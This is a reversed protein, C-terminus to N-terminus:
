ACAAEIQRYSEKAKQWRGVAQPVYRRTTLSRRVVARAEALSAVEGCAIAQVTVNGGATAETSGALVPRGTANATAQNLYENRAGGGVIHITTIPSSTLAEISDVISAYRLALSDFIVRTLHVPHQPAPQGTELLSVRLAETMSPPNLFRLDDPCVFGVFDDLAAAGAILEAYDSDRGDRQWERRCSELLWLGMVNKLFRVTGFAGIENTFNARAAAEDVLPTGREVGVLSWTGSSVFAGGPELPTGAVASATDHTAPAVIPIRDLGSERHLGARLQGLETGAPVIEPMAALPLGLRAFLESDWSATGTSLLGTTSANTIETVLSGSLLHHCLDPILLLHFAAEPLGERAHAALQFITNIPLIQIGTRAFLEARPIRAFVESVVDASTRPDRYCVPEELLHGAGDVVAYDVGWSDVGASVVRVEMDAAVARALGLSTHIGEFLRGIHWRLHGAEQRPAYTFRHVEHLEIGDEGLRGLVARGSGAGLDIALHFPPKRVRATAYWTHALSECTAVLAPRSRRSRGASSQM